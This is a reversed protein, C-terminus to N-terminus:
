HFEMEMESSRPTVQWIRDRLTVQWGVFTFVDM